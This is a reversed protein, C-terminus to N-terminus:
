ITALGPCSLEQWERCLTMSGVCHEVGHYIPYRGRNGAMQPAPGDYEHARTMIVSRLYSGNRGDSLEGPTGTERRRRSDFDLGTNQCYAPKM